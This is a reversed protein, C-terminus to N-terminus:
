LHAHLVIELAAGIGAKIKYPRRVYLGTLMAVHLMIRINCPCLHSALYPNSWLLLYIVKPTM